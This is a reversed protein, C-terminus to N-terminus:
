DAFVGKFLSRAKKPESLSNIVDGLQFLAVSLNFRDAPTNQERVLARALGLREEFLSQAKELDGQSQIVNGLKSLAISLNRRDEPTNQEHALARDLGLSEEFLSQAKELDGQSQIVDGLKSLAVSLNRRAAPTNQERALARALRLSEELLSRAKELDGLSNLVGGLQSLAVSLNRRAEPTNQEHALARDLRLSEEFLSRAKESKGLSNIVDGLRSLAGSLNRRADPTNQERARARALGLSEEFLSRANKSDGLSNIVDGLESLAISLNRRAAPTNQELALARSLGLSEEFLPRANESEGLSNIVDGLKSLAVSLNRRADPTNQERALARALGLSDEFLSRAKELDGLSNTVDGLKSLAISLNRRADPTNQERALARALRLSEEFLSRAEELEGLSNSVDGLRSLAGSLNHRADPTNQERALEHTLDRAEAFLPQAAKPGERSYNSDGLRILVSVLERRRAVNPNKAYDQRARELRQKLVDILPQEPGHWVMYADICTLVGSLDASNGFNPIRELLTKAIMGATRPDHRANAIDILATGAKRVQNSSGTNFVWELEREDARHIEAVLGNRASEQMEKVAAGKLHNDQNKVAIDYYHASLFEGGDPDNKLTIFDYPDDSKELGILVNKFKDNLHLYVAMRAVINRSFVMGQVSALVLAQQVHEPADNFRKVAFEPPPLRVLEMLGADTLAASFDQGIFVRKNEQMWCLIDNLAEPNGDAKDRIAQRQETTLGPFATEVIQEIGAVSGLSIVVDAKDGQSSNFVSAPLTGAQASESWEKKRCIMVVLLPWGEARGQKVVRELFGAMSTNNQLWQVDDLVVVLPIPNFGQPPNKGLQFLWSLLDNSLTDQRRQHEAMPQYDLKEYFLIERSGARKKRIIDIVPLLMGVVAILVGYVVSVKDSFIGLMGFFVCLLGLIGFGLKSIRERSFLATEKTIAEIKNVKNYIGCYTKLMDHAQRLESNTFQGSSGPALRLGLWLYPMRLEPVDHQEGDPHIRLSDIENLRQDPWYGNNRHKGENHTALWHYFEQILRTKGYGADGVIAVVKTIGDEAIQQYAQKLADLERERSVFIHSWDAM